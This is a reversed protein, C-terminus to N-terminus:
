GGQRVDAVGTQLLLGLNCVPYFDGADLTLLRAGAQRSEDRWWELHRALRRRYRALRAEDILYEREEGTEADVLRWHGGTEFDDEAADGLRLLVVATGGSGLRALFNRPEAKWLLDSIVIRIGRQQFRGAFNALAEAPGAEAAFDFQQWETPRAPADVRSLEGAARWVKLTFGANAAAQAVLAALALAARRKLGSESNMSASDDIILDCRPDIEERYLKVMWQESRAYVGWDIRRLDDGPRYERYESFELAHGHARGMRRGDFGSIEAPARWTLAGGARLGARIADLQEASARTM